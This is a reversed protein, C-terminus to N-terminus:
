WQTSHLKARHPSPFSMYALVDPEGAVSRQRRGAVAAVCHRIVPISPDPGALIADVPHQPEGFFRTPLITDDPRATTVRWRLHRFRPAFAAGGASLKGAAGRVAAGFSARCAAFLMTLLDDSAHARRHGAAGVDGTSIGRLYLL